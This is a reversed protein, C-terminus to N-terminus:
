RSQPLTKATSRLFYFIAYAAALALVGQAVLTETTPFLGLWDVTPVKSLFSIPIAGAEQLEHLGSGIFAISMLYLLISTVTFFPRIPLRLTFRYFVFSILSLAVAATLAGLWIPPPNKAQLVLAQYFIVTELGERYTALFGTFILTIISKRGMTICIRGRIYETWKQVTSKTVLWYSVLFLVIAALLMAAAEVYHTSAPHANLYAALLTQVLVATLLTALVGAGAGMVAHQVQDKRGVKVLFGTI